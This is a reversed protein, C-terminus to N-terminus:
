IALSMRAFSLNAAIFNSITNRIDGNSFTIQFGKAAYGNSQTYRACDLTLNFMPQNDSMIIRRIDRSGGYQNYRMIRDIFADCWIEALFRKRAYSDFRSCYLHSQGVLCVIVFLAITM